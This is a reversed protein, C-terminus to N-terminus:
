LTVQFLGTHLSVGETVAHPLCLRSHTELWGPGCLSIRYPSKLFTRWLSLYVFVQNRAPLVPSTTSGKPLPAKMSSTPWQPWAKFAELRAGRGWKWNAKQKLSSSTVTQRSELGWAQWKSSQRDATISEGKQLCMWFSVAKKWLNSKSM